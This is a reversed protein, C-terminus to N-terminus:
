AVTIFGELHHTAAHVQQRVLECGHSRPKTPDDLHFQQWQLVVFKWEIVVVRRHVPKRSVPGRHGATARGAGSRLHAGPRLGSRTHLCTGAFGNYDTGATRRPQAGTCRGRGGRTHLAGRRGLERGRGAERHRCLRARIRRSGRRRRDRGIDLLRRRRPSIWFTTVAHDSFPLRKKSPEFFHRIAAAGRCVM